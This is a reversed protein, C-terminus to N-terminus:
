KKLTSLLKKRKKNLADIDEVFKRKRETGVILKALAQQVLSKNYHKKWSQKQMM